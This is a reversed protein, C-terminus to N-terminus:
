NGAVARVKAVEIYGTPEGTQRNVSAVVEVELSKGSLADTDFPGQLVAGTAAKYFRQLQFVGPGSLPTKHFLRRGNNKTNAEGYTELEWNIYTGGSPWTGEKGQKVRVKYTGPTVDDKVDTFDPKVLM